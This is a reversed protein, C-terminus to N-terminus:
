EIKLLFIGVWGIGRECSSKVDKLKRVSVDTSGFVITDGYSVRGGYTGDEM